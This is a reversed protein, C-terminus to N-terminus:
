RYFFQVHYVSLILQSISAQKFKKLYTKHIDFSQSIKTIKQSDHLLPDATYEIAVYLSNVIKIIKRM